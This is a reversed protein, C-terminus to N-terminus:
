ISRAPFAIAAQRGRAFYHPGEVGGYKWPHERAVIRGVAWGFGRLSATPSFLPWREGPLGHVQPMHRLPPEECTM